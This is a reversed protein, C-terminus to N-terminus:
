FDHRTKNARDITQSHRLVKTYIEQLVWYFGLYQKVGKPNTPRVMAKLSELMDPVPEIGNRSLLHGLYQVQAKM